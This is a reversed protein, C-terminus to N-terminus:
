HFPLGAILLRPLWTSLPPFLIIVATVLLDSLFFFMAGRLVTQIPIKSIGSVAFLNFGVPPTIDIRAVGATLTLQGM